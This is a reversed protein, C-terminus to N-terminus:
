QVPGDDTEIDPDESAAEELENGGTPRSIVYKESAWNGVDILRCRDSCFPMNPDDFPVEQKCIPCRVVTPM